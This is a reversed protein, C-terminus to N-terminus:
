EGAETNDFEMQEKNAADDSGGVYDFTQALKSHSMHRQLNPFSGGRTIYDQAYSRRICHPGFKYREDVCDGYKRCWRYVATRDYPFIRETPKIGYEKIQALLRSQIRDPLVMVKFKGKKRIVRITHKAGPLKVADIDCPRLGHFIDYKGYIGIIDSLRLGRVYMTELCLGHRPNEATEAAIIEKM